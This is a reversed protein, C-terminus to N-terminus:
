KVYEGCHVLKDTKNAFRFPSISVKTFPALLKSFNCSPSLTSMISAGDLLNSSMNGVINKIKNVLNSLHVNRFNQFM